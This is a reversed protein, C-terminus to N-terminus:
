PLEDDTSVAAGSPIDTDVSPPAPSLTMLSIDNTTTTSSPKGGDSSTMKDTPSKQKPTPTTQAPPSASASAEGNTAGTGVGQLRALKQLAFLRAKTHAIASYEKLFEELLILGRFFREGELTEVNLSTQQPGASENGLFRNLRMRAEEKRRQFNAMRGARRQGSNWLDRLIHLLLRPSDSATSSSSSSSSSPAPTAPTSPASGATSSSSSSSEDEQEMDGQVKLETEGDEEEDDISKRIKVRPNFMFQHLVPHPCYALTSLVATLKLNTAFSNEYLSDLKNFLTSLFLGEYFPHQSPSHSSAPNTTPTATTAPSSSPPKKPTSPATSSGAATHDDTGNGQALSTAESGTAEQINRDAEEKAEQEIRQARREAELQLEEDWARMWLQGEFQADLLYDEFNPLSAFDTLGKFGEFMIHQPIPLIDIPTPTLVSRTRDPDASSLMATSPTAPPLSAATTDTANSAHQIPVVLNRLILNHMVMPDRLTILTHFLSLTHICLTDNLSDLRKLLITRM